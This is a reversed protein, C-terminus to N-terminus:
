DGLNIYQTVAEKPTPGVNVHFDIIGGLIRYTITQNPNLIIEMANSNMLFVSHAYGNPEFNLYTPHSGYLNKEPRPLNGENYFM